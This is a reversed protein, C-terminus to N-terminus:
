AYLPHDVMHNAIIVGAESMEQIQQWSLFNAQEDDIPQTSIFVTFPFGYSQLLPFAEEYISLYGDDFSIAVAKDSIQQGLRLSEIMQDLPIVNFANDRLYDLHTKFDEPSISTSAPTNTAVHHYQLIVGHEAAHILGSFALGCLICFLRINMSLIKGLAPYLDEDYRIELSVPM